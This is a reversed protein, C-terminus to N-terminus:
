DDNNIEVAALGFLGGMTVDPETPAFSILVFEDPEREVDGRVTVTIAADTEGRPFTVTGSDALYDDAAAPSADLLKAVQDVDAAVAPPLTRWAVTIPGDSPKSLSVPVHLALPAADGERTSASGPRVQPLENTLVGVSRDSSSCTADRGERTAGDPPGFVYIRERNEHFVQELPQTKIRLGEDSGSMPYDGISWTAPRGALADEWPSPWRPDDQDGLVVWDYVDVPAAQRQSGVVVDACIQRLETPLMSVEQAVLVREGDRVRADMWQRVSSRTDVHGREMAIYRRTGGQLPAWCLVLGVVVTVVVQLEHSLRLRTALVRVAAVILAAAAICLFPLLPLINRVPQFGARVLEALTPIAFALYALVIPRARRSRALVVLGAVGALLMLRGFERAHLIQEWYSETPPRSTYVREQLELADVVDSTRFLFAPMLMAVVFAFVAVALAGLKLRDWVSRDRRLAVAACVALLVTGITYKSTFALASAGAGSVLWTVLQRQSSADVVRACCYLAATAFAAAPTDTIVISGRTVFIPLVAVFFAALLGVRRGALRTGLLAVLVINALALSLVVLRGAIVLTWPEVIEIYATGVTSRAGERLENTAGTAAAVASATVTTADMLFSPYGYWGPDWTSDSIQQASGKLPAWEDTYTAYPTDATLTVGRLAAGLGAVGVIAVVMVATSRRWASSRVWSTVRGPLSPAAAPSASDAEDRTSSLGPVAM